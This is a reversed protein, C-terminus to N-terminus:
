VDMSVEVWGGRMRNRQGKVCEMANRRAGKETNSWDKHVHELIRKPNDPDLVVVEWSWYGNEQWVRYVVNM